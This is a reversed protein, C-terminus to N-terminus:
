NERLVEIAKELQEDIEEVQEVIIDPEIGIENIKNKNPTLYENTTLKIGSGDTFSMIQQIVGKGYTQTGVITAIQHDKLAGIMIESSSASNGNCIIVVPMDVVKDRSAIDIQENGNKDVEYLMVEKKDLFLDVIELVQSVLGGGNNRLDVILSTIGQSKLKEIENEVDSATNEDFSTFQIYGINEELVEGEVPNVTIKQRVIDFDIEEGDRLVTIKVNTGEEGKINSVAEDLMDGTYSIGDVKTIYDGALIGVEEAPGGKIPTLVLIYGDTSQAMYIGIGMFTGMTDQMYEKMEDSTIYQSYKDGLGQVLGKYAGDYLDQMEYQGLYSSKITEELKLLTQSFVELESMQSKQFKIGYYTGGVASVVMTLVIALILIRINNQKASKKSEKM